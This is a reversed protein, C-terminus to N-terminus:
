GLYAERVAPNARIEEPTGVALLQGLNLAVVRDCQRMLFDMDHEVLLVACDHQKCIVSIRDGLRQAENADLGSTPEDLLLVSPQGVIARALEVMRALGIPLSAAPTDCLDALGCVELTALAQERRREERRRRSPLAVLDALFGGGGGHWELAAVVNDLVSLWGFPQVVQFTRHLGARSRAVASKGTVEEGCLFVRGEQASRVGSIVDFMTTKGAGNPGILGLVEGRKVSFSVGDIAKIGGFSVHVQDVSLAETVTTQQGVAPTKSM